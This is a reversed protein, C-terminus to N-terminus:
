CNRENKVEPRKIVTEKESCNNLDIFEKTKVKM